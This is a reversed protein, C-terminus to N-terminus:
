RCVSEIIDFVRQLRASAADGYNVWRLYEIAEIREEYTRSLWYDRDNDELTGVSLMTKNIQPTKIEM